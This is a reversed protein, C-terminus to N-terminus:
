TCIRAATAARVCAAVEAADVPRAVALPKRDIDGNWVARAADYGDDGPAVVAGTLSSRLSALLDQSM